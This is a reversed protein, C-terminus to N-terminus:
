SMVKVEFLFKLIDNGHEINARKIISIYRERVENELFLEKNKQKLKYILDILLTEIIEIEENSTYPNSTAKDVANILNQLCLHYQELSGEAIAQRYLLQAQVYDIKYDIEKKLAESQKISEIKIERKLKNIRSEFSLINYLQWGVLVTVLVSLIGALIGLMDWKIPEFLRVNCYISISISVVSLVIAIIFLTYITKKNM